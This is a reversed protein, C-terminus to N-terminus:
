LEVQEDPAFEDEEETLLERAHTDSVKMFDEGSKPDFFEIGIPVEKFAVM